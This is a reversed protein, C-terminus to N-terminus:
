SGSGTTEQWTGDQDLTVSVPTSIGSPASATIIFQLRPTQSEDYSCSSITFDSDDFYKGTLDEALFGLDANMSPPYNGADAQEAAYAKIATSISGLMGKGESWKAADIRGRLVPTAVSALIGVILLVVMLEVLTFGKQKKM